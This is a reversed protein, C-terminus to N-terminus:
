PRLWAAVSSSCRSITATSSRAGSRWGQAKWRRPCTGRRDALWGPLWIEPLTLGQAVGITAITAILRPRTRFPRLVVTEVILGTLASGVLMVLLAAWYPWNHNTVLLVALLAPVGGLGAQAFSIVRTARYVLVIGVGVLGYLVGVVAGDIM